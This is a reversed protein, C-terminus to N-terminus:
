FTFRASLQVERPGGGSLTGTIQGFSANTVNTNPTGFHTTNWINYFEAQFKFAMRERIPVSKMVTMDWKKLGPARLDAVRSSLRRLTFPEQPVFQSPDFYRQITRPNNDSRALREANAFELPQMSQFTVVWNLQWGGVIRSVVPHTSALLPKGPGFPMEYIGHLVLRQPRDSNSIVNEPKADNNNLYSVAEMLKSVTYAAGFYIGHRMRKSIQVQMSDYHSRGYPLVAQTLSLYHPYPRLLQQVTTTPQSLASTPDTVVGFFPNPVRANLRTKLPLFDNSYDNVRRTMTMRQSVNGVYSTELSIDGPLAFQFGTSFQQSLGQKYAPVSDGPAFGATLNQGVATLLGGSAGPPPTLGSPFPNSLRNFPTLNNDLSTVMQTALSFGDQRFNSINNPIYFLGWGGRWVIREALRYAYGFRPAYILAPMNLNGRPTGNNNLFGLGGRVAIASLEPIPNRAYNAQVEGQIPSAVNFDIGSNGRDFREFVPSEHEFRMGLNLTLRDTIKWDDQFYFSYYTNQLARSANIDTYGRTPNGLLFSAFDHGSNLTVRTPDPGQTLVRDFRFFGGARSPAFNNSQAVQYRFGYKLAHRGRNTHFNILPNFQNIYVSSSVGEAGLNEVDGSMEFRPFTNFALSRAFSAPFGLTGIDFGEGFMINADFYRTFGFRFDIVTRPSQIWTHGVAAAINGRAFEDQGSTPNGAPRCCEGYYPTSPDLRHNWGYRFFLNHASSVQHDARSSLSAWKRGSSRPNDFNQLNDSTPTRNPLPYFKAAALAVPDHRNGPILNGPFPSRVQGSGSARTTLPDYITFPRGFRDATQSFDGTRELATPVIARSASNGRIQTGEFDFFYHTRDRGDYLKPIWVPGSIAAGYTNQKNENKPNGNRNNFFSNANLNDNRLYWYVSGHVDNTGSKTSVNVFAAGSHGYEADYANTQVRMEQVADPSPSFSVLDIRMNPIGDLLFESRSESGSSAFDSPGSADWPNLAGPSGTYQIGPSLTLFVYPNRGILPLENIVQTNISTGLAGTETRLLSAEATVTVSEAIQGVELAIDVSITEGTQLRVGERVFRKFGDREAEIRYNGFDVLVFRYLGSSDSQELRTAGTGTNVLKISVGPVAAGSSDRVIGTLNSKNVQALLPLSVVFLCLVRHCTM